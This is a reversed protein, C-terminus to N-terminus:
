RGLRLMLNFCRKIVNPEILTGRFECPETIRNITYKLHTRILNGAQIMTAREDVQAVRRLMLMVPLRHASAGFPVFKRLEDTLYEVEIYM